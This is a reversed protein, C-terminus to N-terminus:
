ALPDSMAAAAPYDLEEGSHFVRIRLHDPGASGTVEYMPGESGFRRFRAAGALEVDHIFVAGREEVGATM